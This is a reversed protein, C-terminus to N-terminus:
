KPNLAANQANIAGHSLSLSHITSHDTESFSAFSFFFFLASTGYYIAKEVQLQQGEPM